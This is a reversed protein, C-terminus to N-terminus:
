LKKLFDESAEDDDNGSYEAKTVGHKALVSAQGDTEFEEDFDDESVADLGDKEEDYFIEDAMTEKEEDDFRFFDTM